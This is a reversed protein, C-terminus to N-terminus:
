RLRKQPRCWPGQPTLAELCADGTAHIDLCVETDSVTATTGELKVGAGSVVDVLLFLPAGKSKAMTLGALIASGKFVNVQLTEGSPASAFDYLKCADVEPTAAETVIRDPQCGEAAALVLLAVTAFSLLAPILPDTM